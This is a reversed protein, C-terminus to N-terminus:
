PSVTDLILWESFTDVSCLVEALALHKGSNESVCYVHLLCVVHLPQGLDFFCDFVASEIERDPHVVISPSSGLRCAYKIDYESFAAVRFVHTNWALSVVLLHASWHGVSWALYRLLSASTFEWGTWDM